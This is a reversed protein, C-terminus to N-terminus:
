DMSRVDGSGTVSIYTIDPSGKYYVDGSGSATVALEGTVYVRTDGSGSKDIVCEESKFKFASVDGSSVQKIALDDTSGAIKVDGSGTLKIECEDTEPFELDMDGSGNVGIYLRDAEGEMEVDGSGNVKCKLADASVKMEANGSGNILLFFDDCYIMDEGYVDGSGAIELSELEVCTVYVKFVNINRMTGETDIILTNNKVYTEVQDMYRDDIEVVVKQSKGQYLYLDASCKLAIASFSAVSREESKQRGKTMIAASTAASFLALILMTIIGSKIFTKMKM